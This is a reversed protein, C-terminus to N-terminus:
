AVGVPLEHVVVANVERQRKRQIVQWANGVALVVHNHVTSETGLLQGIGEHPHGHQRSVIGSPRQM